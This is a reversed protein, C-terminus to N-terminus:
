AEGGRISAQRAVLMADAIQYATQAASDPTWSWMGTADHMACLGTLAALAFQDRLDAGAELVEAPSKTSEPM